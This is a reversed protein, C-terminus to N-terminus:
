TRRQRAPKTGILHTFVPLERIVDDNTPVFRAPNPLHGLRRLATRETVRRIGYSDTLMWTDYEPDYQIGKVPYESYRIRLAARNVRPRYKVRRGTRVGERFASPRWRTAWVKRAAKRGSESTFRGPNPRSATATGGKSAGQLHALKRAAMPITGRGPMRVLVVKGRYNPRKVTPPRDHAHAKKFFHRTPM